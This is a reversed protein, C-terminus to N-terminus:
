RDWTQFLHSCNKFRFDGSENNSVCANSAHLLKTQLERLGQLRSWLRMMPSSKASLVKVLHLATDFENRVSDWFLSSANVVALLLNGFATLLLHKFFLAHKDIIATHERFESPTQISEKVITIATQAYRQNQNIRSFSQLVPRFILNLLHHKRVVLIAQHYALNEYQIQREARNQSLKLNNPLQDYWHLIQYNIYDLDDLKLEAGREGQSNLANWTKGALKTWQLLISLISDSEDLEFLSPHVYSDQIYFPIGLDLSTRRELMYVSWFTRLAVSREEPNPFTKEVIERRHLGMELCLRAAFGSFRGTRVEDDLHYHYLAVLILLQIDHIGNPHWMISEVAETISQFLRQAQDNRGGSELTREIALVLKMKNTDDNFLVELVRGGKYFPGDRQANELVEFVNSAVKLTESRTVLRFLSGVHYCWDDILHFADQKKVDWLPDMNLLKMLPGYQTLRSSSGLASGMRPTPKELIAGPIGMAKLNGSVVNLTHESSSPGCFEPVETSSDGPPRISQNDWLPTTAEVPQQQNIRSTVPAFDQPLVENRRVFTGPNGEAPM